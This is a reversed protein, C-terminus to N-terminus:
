LGLEVLGVRCAWSSQNYETLEDGNCTDVLGNCNQQVDLKAQCQERKCKTSVVHEDDHQENQQVLYAWGNVERSADDHASRDGARACYIKESLM